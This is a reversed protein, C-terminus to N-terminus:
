EALILSAPFLRELQAAPLEFVRNNVLLYDVGGSNIWAVTLPEPYGMVTLRVVAQPALKISVGSLENVQLALWDSELQQIQPLGPQSRNSRWGAGIRELRAAPYDMTLIVSGAELLSLSNQQRPEQNFSLRQSFHLLIIILSVSIIMVNNWGKRSLRPM